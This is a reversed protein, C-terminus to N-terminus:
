LQGQGQDIGGKVKRIWIAEQVQRRRRHSEQDVVRTKIIDDDM